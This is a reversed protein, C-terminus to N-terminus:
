SNNQHNSEWENDYPGEENYTMIKFLLFKCYILVGQDPTTLITRNKWETGYNTEVPTESYLNSRIIM